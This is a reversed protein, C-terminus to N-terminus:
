SRLAMLFAAVVFIGGGIFVTWWFWDACGFPLAIPGMLLYCTM